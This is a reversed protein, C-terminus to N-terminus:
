MPHPHCQNGSMFDIYEVINMSAFLRVFYVCKEARNERRMTIRVGDHKAEHSKGGFWSEIRVAHLCLQVSLSVPM